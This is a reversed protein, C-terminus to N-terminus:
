LGRVGDIVLDAVLDAYKARTADDADSNWMYYWNLMGFVSMTTARLRSKDREFSEPAIDALTENLARVMDRQYNKLITQQDEPLLPLGESQIQHEADMSKYTYLTEHVFAHLREEPTRGEAKVAILRERLASLYTDLIDFLLAEKSAYYHYINAKSIGCARAVQTMSARAYGEDAFVRAATKLIHLRKQDHDKAIARAM